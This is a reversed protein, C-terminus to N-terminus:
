NLFYVYGSELQHGSFFTSNFLSFQTFHNASIPADPEFCSSVILIFRNDLYGPSTWFSLAFGSFAQTNGQLRSETSIGGAVTLHLADLPRIVHHIEARASIESRGGPQFITAIVHDIEARACFAFKRSFTQQPAFVCYIRM